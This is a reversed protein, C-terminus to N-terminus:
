YYNILLSLVYFCFILIELITRISKEGESVSSLINAQNNSEGNPSTKPDTTLVFLIIIITLIIWLNEIITM